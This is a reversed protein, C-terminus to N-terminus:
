LPFLLAGVTNFCLNAVAVRRATKQMKISAVLATATKGIDSCNIKPTITIIVM